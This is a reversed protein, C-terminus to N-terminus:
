RAARGLQDNEVIVSAVRDIDRRLRQRGAGTELRPTVEIESVVPDIRGKLHAVVRATADVSEEGVREHRPQPQPRVTLEDRLRM